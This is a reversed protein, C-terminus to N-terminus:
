LPHSDRNNPLKGKKPSEGPHALKYNIYELVNYSGAILAYWQVAGKKREQMPVNEFFQGLSKQDARRGQQRKDENAPSYM